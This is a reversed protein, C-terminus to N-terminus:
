GHGLNQRRIQICDLRGIDVLSESKFLTLIEQETGMTFLVDVVLLTEIVEEVGDIRYCGLVIHRNEIRAMRTRVLLQLRRAKLEIRANDLMLRKAEM